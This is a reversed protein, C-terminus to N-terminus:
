EERLSEVISLKSARYSPYITVLFSLILSFLVIMLVDWFHVEVPISDLIYKTSDITFLKYEVQLYCLFLGLLGGAISGIFGIIAGDFFYIKRVSFDTAGIARLIAIDKKKELVTMVLSAFVNFIAVLLILGLVFTTAMKEFKMVGYYEKNLDKWTQINLSPFKDRIQKATNNLKDLNKVKVFLQTNNKPQKDSFINYFTFIYNYDYDKINSKYIGGIVTQNFNPLSMGVLSTEIDKATTLNITDGVLVHLADALAAGILIKPINSIGIPSVTGMIMSSRINDLYEKDSTDITLLNVVRASQQNLSVVRMENVCAITKVNAIKIIAKKLQESKAFNGKTNNIIIHPDFGVIQEIAISQFANFISLVIILSAVGITIGILSLFNIITIFNFQHKSFIYRIAIKIEPKM